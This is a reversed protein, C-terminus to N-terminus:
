VLKENAIVVIESSINEEWSRVQLLPGGVTYFRDSKKIKLKKKISVRFKGQVAISNIVDRKLLYTYM